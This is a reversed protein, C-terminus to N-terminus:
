HLKAVIEDDLEYAHETSPFVGNEVDQRYTSFANKLAQGIEAFKKAFRPLRGENLGAMDQWVLIQGDCGAGAGIGIVPVTLEATIKAALPAPVCELLVAFAGADELARADDLLKQALALSKGQIKYGGLAHVSQPMLGIHAMVPMSARCLARIEPVFELGGEMKVAQANGEKFLRGANRVTDNVGCQSAMFPMDCILLANQLGRSVAACHRIMDELTVPITNQYGLMVMGLSDGVLVGDIGCQDVIRAITYDYATLLSLKRVNKAGQFTAVTNKM